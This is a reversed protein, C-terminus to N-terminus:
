PRRPSAPHRATSQPGPSALRSTMVLAGVAALLFAGLWRQPSAYDGDMAPYLLAVYVASVLVLAARARLGRRAALAGLVVFVAFLGVALARLLDFTQVTFAAILAEAARQLGYLGALSARLFRDPGTAYVALTLMGGAVWILGINRRM